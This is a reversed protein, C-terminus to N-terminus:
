YCITESRLKCTEDGIFGSGGVIAVRKNKLLEIQDKSIM